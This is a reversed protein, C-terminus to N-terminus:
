AQMLAAVHVRASAALAELHYGGELLSVLRGDCCIQAIRVLERSLWAYDETQLDLQALPDDRHAVFGASIVLLVPQFAVIAPFAHRQWTERFLVSGSGPPLPLNVVNGVGTETAAGSGPYCPMQHSSVYLLDPSAAFAAQTGNGDHVDFDIVAVRTLGWRRQAHRAAIAANNLLCFGMAREPEAHHGPPRVAVFARDVTGGLVLDVAEVGGGAARLAAELSHQMLVTDADIDVRGGVATLQRLATLYPNSHVLLIAEDSARPAQVHRLARFEPAALVEMVAALRASTEPHQPGPDHAICAEHTVVAVSAM